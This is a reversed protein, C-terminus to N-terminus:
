LAITSLRKAEEDVRRNGKGGTKIPLNNQKCLLQLKQRYGLPKSIGLESLNHIHEDKNIQIEKKGVIKDYRREEKLKNSLSVPGNDEETFLKVQVDGAHLIHPGQFPGIDSAIVMYNLM